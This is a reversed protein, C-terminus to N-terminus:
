RQNKKRIESIAQERADLDVVGFLDIEKKKESM